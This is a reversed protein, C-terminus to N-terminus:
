QRIQVCGSKRREASTQREFVPQDVLGLVNSYFSITAESNEVGIRAHEIWHIDAM